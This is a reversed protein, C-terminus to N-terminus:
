KGICFREFIRDLTDPDITEGTVMGLRGVAENVDVALMDQYVHGVGACVRSVADLAEELAATQRSGLFVMEDLAGLGNRLIEEEVARKLVDIGSGTKASVEIVVRKKGGFFIKEERRVRNLDNQKELPSPELESSPKKASFACFTTSTEEPAPPLDVKNEVILLPKGINQVLELLEADEGSFPVSRDFVAVVLFATELAARTREIGIAEIQDGPPRLGATDILRVPYPGANWREELTDRTTGPIATVIARDRGLLANLLSSKGTNPRGIIAIPLGDSILAGQRAGVLLAEIETRIEVCERALQAEDIDEIADEPFALGAELQTLQDLLRERMARIKRSPGGDLQNLAIRAQSTSQAELLRSTAEVAALDLKGHLFARRIFEGPEAPRVGAKFLTTLIAGLVIPNGHASIEALDEGTFSHPGVFTTVVVHDVTQGALHRVDERHSTDGCLHMSAVCKASVEAPLDEDCSVESPAGRLDAGQSSGDCFIGYFAQGGAPFIRKGRPSFLRKLLPFADPGSLRIVGIASRGGPTAIAAITDIRLTM